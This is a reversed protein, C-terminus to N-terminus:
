KWPLPEPWNGPPLAPDLGSPDTRNIPDGWAFTYPNAQTSTWRVILPDRQLFRGTAPDYTRAGLQVLDLGDLQPGGNFLTNTHEPPGAAGSDAVVAGFPDLAVRQVITGTDDTFARFAVRDGHFYITADDRLEAVLGLPGPVRRVYVHRDEAAIYRREIL